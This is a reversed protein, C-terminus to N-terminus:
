FILIRDLWLWSTWIPMLGRINSYLFWIRIDSGPGPNSAIDGCVILLSLLWYSLYFFFYIKHFHMCFSRPLFSTCGASIGLWTLSFLGWTKLRGPRRPLPLLSIDDGVRWHGRRGDSSNFFCYLLTNSLSTSQPLDPGCIHRRGLIRGWHHRKRLFLNMQRM